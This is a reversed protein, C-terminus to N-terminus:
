RAILKIPPATEYPTATDLVQAVLRTGSKALKVQYMPQLLAHDQPRIANQGKPGLFKYGELATIMKDVDDGGKKLAQVIMLAANFGDPTFLDPAQGKKRMEKVLWDNVKNKPATYVYHTFFQIKTAPDGFGSWTAKEPLGTTIKNSVGFVGQQDLAKWMAGATTGAWAVFLLDPNAQKAQQAFPTFDTASLPVLIKSVTHGKSGIIANVAAFNGQGFVSDQAFVVVKKGTQGRLFSAAADIDQLTQRGSRFTYKNAATIADSAAPGSIFLVHNQDALPALQLAVGSSTSGGVIKYGQGIFDKAASVAKAPDGADDALSIEVTKGNVKNTGQTAYKLGLRLGQVYEAGYAALLGTRSYVIGVKYSDAQAHRSSAVSGATGALLAVGLTLLLAKTFRRRM